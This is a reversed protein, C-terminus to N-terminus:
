DPKVGSNPYKANKGFDVRLPNDLGAEVVLNEDRKFYFEM